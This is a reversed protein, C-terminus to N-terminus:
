RRTFEKMAGQWGPEEVGIEPLGITVLARPDVAGKPDQFLSGANGRTYQYRAM